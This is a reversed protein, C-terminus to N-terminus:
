EEDETTYKTKQRWVAYGCMLGHFWAVGVILWTEFDIERMREESEVDAVNNGQV